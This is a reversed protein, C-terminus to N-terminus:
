GFINSSMAGPRRKLDVFFIMRDAAEFRVFGLYLFLSIKQFRRGLFFCINKLQKTVDLCGVPRKSESSSPSLNSLTALLIENM